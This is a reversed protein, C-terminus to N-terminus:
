LAAEYRQEFTEKDIVTLKGDEFKVVYDLFNVVRDIGFLTDLVMLRDASEEKDMGTTWLHYRSETGDIIKEMEKSSVSKTFQLALVAVRNKYLKIM